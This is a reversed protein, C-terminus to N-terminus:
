PPADDSETAKPDGDAPKGARRLRKVLSEDWIEYRNKGQAKAWRVATDAKKILADRAVDVHNALRHEALAALTLEVDNVSDEVMLIRVPSVQGM